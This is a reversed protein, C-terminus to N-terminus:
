PVSVEHLRKLLFTREAKNECLALAADYAVRAEAFYGARRLMDARAAHFWHYGGLEGELRRKDLAM